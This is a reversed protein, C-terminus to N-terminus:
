RAAGESWAIPIEPAERGPLAIVAEEALALWPKNVDKDRARRRRPRAAETRTLRARLILVADPGDPPNVLYDAPEFGPPVSAEFRQRARGSLRILLYQTVTDDRTLVTLRNDAQSAIYVAFDPEGTALLQAAMAGASKRGSANASFGYYEYFKAELAEVYDEGREFLRREIYGLGRGLDKIANDTLRELKVHFHTLAFVEDGDGEAVREVMLAYDLPLLRRVLTDLGPSDFRVDASKYDSLDLEPAYASLNRWSVRNSARLRFHKNLGIPVRGDVAFVLATNQYPQEVRGTGREPLLTDPGPFGYPQGARRCRRWSQVLTHDILLRGLRQRTEAFDAGAPVPTEGLAGELVIVQGREAM